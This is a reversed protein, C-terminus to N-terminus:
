RRTEREDERGQERESGAHGATDDATAARSAPRDDRDGATATGGSVGDFRDREDDDILKHDALGREHLQAEEELREAQAREVQANKQAIAAEQEAQEARSTRTSAEDRHETAVRERRSGLEKAAKREEAKARMRPMLVLLGVLILAVVVIAIILGTSM